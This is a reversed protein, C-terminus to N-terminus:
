LRTAMRYRKIASSSDLHGSRRPGGDRSTRSGLVLVVADFRHDWFCLAFTVAIKSGVSFTRIAAPEVHSAVINLKEAPSPRVPSVLIQKAVRNKYLDAGAFPRTELGGGLVVIADAPDISDSALGPGPREGRYKSALSGDPRNLWCYSLL